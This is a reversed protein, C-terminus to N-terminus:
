ERARAKALSRAGLADVPELLDDDVEATVVRGRQGLSVLRTLGQELEVAVVTPCALGGGQDLRQVGRIGSRRVRPTPIAFSAPLATVRGPVRDCIKV